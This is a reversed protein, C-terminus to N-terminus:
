TKLAGRARSWALVKTKLVVDSGEFLTAVSGQSIDIDFVIDLILEDTNSKTVDNRQM